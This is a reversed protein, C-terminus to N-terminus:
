SHQLTALLDTEFIPFDRLAHWQKSFNQAVEESIILTLLEDLLSAVDGTGVRNVSSVLGGLQSTISASGSNAILAAGTLPAVEGDM